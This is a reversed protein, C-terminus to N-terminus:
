PMFLPKVAALLMSFARDWEEKNSEYEGLGLNYRSGDQPDCTDLDLHTAKGQSTWIGFINGLADRRRYVVTEDMHHAAYRPFELDKEIFFKKESQVKIKM